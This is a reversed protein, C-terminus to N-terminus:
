TAEIASETFNQIRLLFLELSFSFISYENPEKIKLDLLPISFSM